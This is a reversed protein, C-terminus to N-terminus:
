IAAGASQRDDCESEIKALADLIYDRDDEALYRQLFVAYANLDTDKFEEITELIKYRPVGKSLVALFLDVLWNLPHRRLDDIEFGSRSLADYQAELNSLLQEQIRPEMQDLDRLNVMLSDLREVIRDKQARPMFLDHRSQAWKEQLDWFHQEVWDHLTQPNLRGQTRLEQLMTKVQEGVVPVPSLDAKEFDERWQALHELLSSGNKLNICAAKLNEPSPTKIELFAQACSDIGMLFAQRAPEELTPAVQKYLNVLDDIAEQAETVFRPLAQAHLNRMLHAQIAHILRDVAPLQSLHLAARTQVYGDMLAYVRFCDATFERAKTPDLVTKQLRDMTAAIELGLEQLEPHSAMVRFNFHARLLSPMLDNWIQAGRPGLKGGNKHKEELLTVLIPPLPYIQAKLMGSLNSFKGSRGEVIAYTLTKNGGKM